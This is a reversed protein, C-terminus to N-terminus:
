GALQDMRCQEPAKDLRWRVLRTGHRFRDATVQDFAVEVVLVPRIPTWEASRDTAWRSRGGPAAGTFGPPGALAELRRTLTTREAGSITSTFGVHNLRGAEDYLGLLLSGAERKQDLYRFGGVVCDATRVRKVKVMAREGARYPGDRRKAMVGDRGNSGSRRLWRQATRLDLTIPALQLGSADPLRDFFSELAARRRELSEAALDLGTPSVLMDFLVLTAPTEAALRRIRSQAPHLRQQLAAFGGREIILEGDVLFVQAPLAALHALVEPFYRGLPKGSKGILAAEGGCRWALARFGDFKPEFQWGAGRPLEAAARAEM